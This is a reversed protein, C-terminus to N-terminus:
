RPYVDVRTVTYAGIRGFSQSWVGAQTVGGVILSPTCGRSSGSQVITWGDNPIYGGTYTWAERLMPGYGACAVQVVGVGPVSAAVIGYALSTDINPVGAWSATSDRTVHRAAGTYHYQVYHISSNAAMMPGTPAYGSGAQLAFAAWGNATVETYTVEQVAVSPQNTWLAGIRQEYGRSAVKASPAASAIGVSAAVLLSAAALTVAFRASRM